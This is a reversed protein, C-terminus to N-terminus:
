ALERWMNSRATMRLRANRRHPATYKDSTSSGYFQPMTGGDSPIPPRLFHFYREDALVASCGPGRRDNLEQNTVM